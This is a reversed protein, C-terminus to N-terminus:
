YERIIRIISDCLVAAPLEGGSLVYDGVSIERTILHQRVREDVGKIIVVSSLSIKKLSLSNSIRISNNAMPRCTSSKMM